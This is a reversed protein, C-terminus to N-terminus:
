NYHIETLKFPRQHSNYTAYYLDRILEVLFVALQRDFLTLFTDLHQWKESRVISLLIKRTHAHHFIFKWVIGLFFRGTLIHRIVSIDWKNTHSTINAITFVYKTTQKTKHIIYVKQQMIELYPANYACLVACYSSSFIQSTTLQIMSSQAPKLRALPYSLWDWKDLRVGLECIIRSSVNTEAMVSQLSHTKIPIRIKILTVPYQKVLRMGRRVRPLSPNPISVKKFYRSWRRRLEAIPIVSNLKSRERLKREDKYRVPDIM